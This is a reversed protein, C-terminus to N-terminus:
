YGPNQTLYPDNQLEMGPIPFLISTAKWNPKIRSLVDNAKNTRKLDLWRHGWECFLEAQREHGIAKLLDNKNDLDTNPLGARNRVVNLDAQAGPINNQEVRAEARILYQEALRLVMSYETLISSSKVKYKYPFYYVKGDVSISDIWDQRRQDRLEFNSILGSNLSVTNPISSLIFFYGEATNQNPNVPMLQWIAENSNALFVDDLNSSLSFDTSNNIIQSAQMEANQWDGTFLYVRSLLATAAWKTPRTREGKFYSYDPTLLNQASILDKIIQQYVQAVPIRKAYQNEKYGTTLVLPIDGFLNVLYFNWFARVFEAEGTLQNKLSNSIEVSNKSGEMVANAYYIYQYAQDWFSRVSENSSELANAYFESISPNSSFNLLEDSSLGTYFPVIYTSSGAMKSYIITQSAVATLSDSYVATSILETKPSPVDVFKKCSPVTVSILYCGLATLTNKKCIGINKFISKM